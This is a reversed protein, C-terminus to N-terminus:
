AKATVRKAIEDEIMSRTAMATPFGLTTIALIAVHVLQEPTAGADLARRTHARVGTEIRGGAACALKILEANLPDIPGAARAAEGLSEYARVVAPHKEAFRQYFTPPKSM